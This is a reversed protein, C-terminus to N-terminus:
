GYDVQKCIYDNNRDTLRLDRGAGEKIIGDDVAKNLIARLIKLHKAISM